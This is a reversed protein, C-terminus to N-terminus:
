YTRETSWCTLLLRMLYLPCCFGVQDFWTKMIETSQKPLNSRKRAKGQQYDYHSPMFFSPQAGHYPPHGLQSSQPPQYTEQQGYQTTSQREVFGACIPREYDQDSQHSLSGEAHRTFGGYGNTSSRRLSPYDDRRRHFGQEHNRFDFETPRDIQMQEPARYQPQDRMPTSSSIGDHFSNTAQYLTNRSPSSIRSMNRELQNPRRRVDYPYSQGQPVLISANSREPDPGVSQEFTSSSLGPPSFGSSNTM